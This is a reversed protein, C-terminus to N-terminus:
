YDVSLYLDITSDGTGNVALSDGRTVNYLGSCIKFRKEYVFEYLKKISEGIMRPDGTYTVKLANSIIFSPKVTFGNPVFDISNIPCVIEIDVIYEGNVISGGYTATIIDYHEINHQALFQTLLELKNRVNEQSIKDRYYLVSEKHYVQNM